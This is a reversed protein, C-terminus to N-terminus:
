FAFSSIICYCLTKDWLFEINLGSSCVGLFQTDTKDCNKVLGVYNQVECYV